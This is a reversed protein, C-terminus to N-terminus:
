RRWTTRSGPNGSKERNFMGFRPFIYWIVVFHALYGCFMSNPWLTSLHGCVATFYESRAYFIGVNKM